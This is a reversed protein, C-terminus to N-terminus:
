QINLKYVGAVEVGVSAGHEARNGLGGPVATIWAIILVSADQGHAAHQNTVFAPLDYEDVVPRAVFVQFLEAIVVEEVQDIQPFFELPPANGTLINRIDYECMEVEVMASIRCLFFLLGTSLREEFHGEWVGDVPYATCLPLVEKVRVCEFGVGIKMSFM